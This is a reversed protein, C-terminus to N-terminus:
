PSMRRKQPTNSEFHSASLHGEIGDQNAIIRLGNENKKQLFGCYKYGDSHEGQIEIKGDTLFGVVM